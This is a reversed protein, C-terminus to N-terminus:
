NTIAGEQLINQILYLISGSLVIIAIGILSYKLMDKATKIKTEDGGATVFNFGAFLLMVTVAVIMLGWIFGLGWEFFAEIQGPETIIQGPGEGNAGIMAVPAILTILILAILIKKM